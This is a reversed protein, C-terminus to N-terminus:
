QISSALEFIPMYMLVVVLGIAVGIITMLFPEFLRMVWDIWRGLEDDYFGAIREMMEGMQGGKEGVEMLQSSVPTTLGAAAMAGSIPQGEEILTRARGLQAQLHSPLLGSVMDIAAVVPIGSRLLMGLTRYFRALQYLKLRRGLAPFRWLRDNLWRRVSPHALAYGALALCAVVIGLTAWGHREVWGGVFLLIASFFPLDGAMDEYIRAFRPVVYFMLFMLVSTGVIVLVAPYLLAAAIKKRVRDFQEEYEVYRALSRRLDGTRESARAIAAYIAPFHEPFRTIAQSFSQGANLSDLLKEIVHRTSADEEKAALTQLAQVLNLGADLLALLEITFFATPFRRRRLLALAAAMGRPRIALVAYGQSIAAQRAAIADSAELQLEVVATDGRVAKVIFQM